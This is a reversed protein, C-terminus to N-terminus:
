YDKVSDILDDMEKFLGNIDEDDYKNSSIQIVLENILDEMKDIFSNLTVLKNKLEREIVPNTGDDLEMMKRAVSLQNDFLDNSKEIALEFKQYSMHSPDFLKDLLEKAKNQKYFYKEEIKNIDDQYKSPGYVPVDNYVKKGCQMCFHQNEVLKAGCYICFHNHSDVM